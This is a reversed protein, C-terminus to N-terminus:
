GHYFKSQHYKNLYLRHCKDVEIKLELIRVQQKLEKNKKKLKNLKKKLKKSM